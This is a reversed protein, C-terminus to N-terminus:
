RTIAISFVFFRYHGVRFSFLVSAGFIKNLEGKYNQKIEYCNLTARMPNEKLINNGKYNMKCVILM